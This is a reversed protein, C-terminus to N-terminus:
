SPLSFSNLNTNNHWFSRLNLKQQVKNRTPRMKQRHSSFPRLPRLFFLLGIAASSRDVMVGTENKMNNAFLCFLAITTLSPALILLFLSSRRLRAFQHQCGSCCQFFSSLKWFLFSVTVTYLLPLSSSSIHFPNWSWNKALFFISSELGM